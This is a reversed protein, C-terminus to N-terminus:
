EVSIGGSRALREQFVEYALTMDEERDCRTFPPIYDTAYDPLPDGPQANKIDEFEKRTLGVGPLGRNSTFVIIGRQDYFTERENRHLIPFQVRYITCLEEATLNLALAALADLEVLSQRREFPTRAACHRHWQPHLHSWSGLRSDQKTFSDQAFAPDWCEHWLDAYHTTLCNLRLARRSVLFRLRPDRTFPLQDNVDNRADSKGTSKVYFDVPLSSCLGSFIVLDRTVSFTLSYVTDIHAVERPAICNVYTREGAAYIMRRNLHRYFRTFIENKWKPLRSQYEELPVAPVYNSRPLYDDSIESVDTTSYDLHSNCGENPNKYFPTGVFFHPGSFIFECASQPYCTERQMTGDKQQGTENFCQSPFYNPALDSLRSDMSALKKLVQLIERSHVIPIRSEEPPTGPPDYLTAFTRLADRDVRVIRSAHGKLEWKDEPSKIGPVLGCGDHRLSEELTKPHFLNSAVQFSPKAWAGRTISFCYPRTHLVGEFLMLENQFRAYWSLRGSLEARLVGGKPDDFVGPQHILGEMGDGNLLHWNFVLFCKYLNTQQKALLPYNANSNLFQSTGILEQYEGLYLGREEDGKLVEERRKATESASIKKVELEPAIDGLVGGEKWEVKVWPPNGVIVDFGGREQFVEAFVLEWHVFRVRQAVQKVVRFRPFSDMAQDVDYDMLADLEMLWEDRTPLLEAQDLPWFWLACWYDMIAKLRRGPGTGRDLSAATQTSQEVSYALRNEDAQPQGWLNIPQRIQNLVSKREAAHKDWLTDVRTSIRELSDCEEPTFPATIEKRWAKMRDIADKELKKVNKDKEFDAMGDYPVLFHYVHGKECHKVREPATGLWNPSKKSNKRVLDARHYAQRRAGILSDGTALRQDLYPTQFDSHLTNLWLSLKALELARPNKDVGYCNHCTFHYKVKQWERPYQDSPITEGTEEQRKELYAHSLQNVVENLFAGSGMAPECVTLELIEGAALGELREKLTYKVLCRTLVEPTYFSASKERERGSLRFLYDGKPHVIKKDHADRVFENEDFMGSDSVPVFFTRAEPDNVEKASRVEYLDETAFFGSYSLLGEYVSGLQNIGLQAYSIRGRDKRKGEKSLSLLRLVEQLVCNRFKVGRLLPTRAPDFVPSFLGKMVFGSHHVEEETETLVLQGAVDKASAQRPFGHQILDFLQQLSHHIYHGDQAETTTLPVLELDRLTELSYGQRFADANMPAVGLEPGRAEVYFLFLLRYLYTLCEETVQQALEDNNFVGEKSVQRKYRIAENGLLEIAERAGYKLDASVAYAHKHNSEDLQDLLCLDDDPNLVEQHLLATTARLADKNKRSLLDPLEFRLFKGQGWKYGDVLLIDDGGFFLVWRPPTEQKFIANDLLERWTQQSVQIEEPNERFSQPLQEPLPAQDLPSEDEENVFGTDVAWLFPRGDRDQSFLLPVWDGEPLQEATPEYKYGLAEDLLKAHFDRALKWREAPDREESAQLRTKFFAQSLRSFKKYPTPRGDEKERERWKKFIDKLDSGLVAELYHHSYFEGVNHIGTLDISM